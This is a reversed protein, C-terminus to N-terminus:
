KTVGSSRHQNHALEGKVTVHPLAPSRTKGPSGRSLDSLREHLREHTPNDALPKINGSTPKSRHHLDLGDVVARESQHDLRDLPADNASM